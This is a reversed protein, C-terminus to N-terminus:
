LEDGVTKVSSRAERYPNKLGNSKISDFDTVFRVFLTFLRLIYDSRM